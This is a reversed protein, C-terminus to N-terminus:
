ENRKYNYITVKGLYPKYTWRNIKNFWLNPLTLYINWKKPIKIRKSPIVILCNRQDLKLHKDLNLKLKIDEKRFTENCIVIIDKKILIDKNKVILRNTKEETKLFKLVISNFTYLSLSFMLFLFLWKGEQDLDLRNILMVTIISLILPIM